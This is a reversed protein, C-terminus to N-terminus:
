LPIHPRWYVDVKCWNPIGFFFTTGEPSSVFLGFGVWGEDLNQVNRKPMKKHSNRTSLKQFSSDIISSIIIILMYVHITYLQIYYIYLLHYTHIYIYVLVTRISSLLTYVLLQSNNHYVNIYPIYKLVNHITEVTEVCQPHRIWLIVRWFHARGRDLELTQLKENECLAELLAETPRRNWPSKLLSCPSTMTIDQGPLRRYPHRQFHPIDVFCTWSFLVTWLCTSYLFSVRQYVLM